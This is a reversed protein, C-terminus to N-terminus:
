PKQQPSFRGSGLFDVVHDAVTRSWLMSLHSVPLVSHAKAGELRTEAVAVVGDHPSPLGGLLMGLGIPVRGAILGLEISGSWSSVVPDLLVSGGGGLLRRGGPLAALRRAAHSGRLPAGLCVIRRVREAPQTQLARVAIVGGLSHGVLHIAGPPIGRLFRALRLTNEGAEDAFSHYPFRLVLFGKSLLRRRLLFM